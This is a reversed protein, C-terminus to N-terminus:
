ATRGRAPDTSSSKGTRSELLALLTELGRALDERNAAASLCLRVAEIMPDGGAGFTVAPSVAVNRGRAALTFQRAHWERPLRLWLHYGEPEAVADFGGLAGAAMKQRQVAERRNVELIREATGNEIWRSAIEGLLPSAMWMTARIASELLSVSREPAHLYGVRLGPSLTKSLSTIYYSIDPAYAALPKPLDSPLLGHVGDEVIAVGHRQAIDAIESRRSASMIATTPNQLTPMTYLVRAVRSRCAEEFPGPVLGERDTPLGHLRLPYWAALDKIGPNTLDEVFVADGPRSVASMVAALAHQAGGCVLTRRPDAELGTRGIWAAGAERHGARGAHPQYDLLELLDGERAIESATRELGEAFEERAVRPAVLISLDIVSPDVAEGLQWRTGEETFDRVFTGRGTEGVVLGRRKAEAYARTVTALAVGLRSALDRHTPLRDGPRLEGREIARGLSDAIAEYGAQPDLLTPAWMTM